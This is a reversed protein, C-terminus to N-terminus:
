AGTAKVQLFLAWQIPPQTTVLSKRSAITFLFIGLGRWSDIGLVEITWGTLRASYWQAIGAVLCYTQVYYFIVLIFPCVM